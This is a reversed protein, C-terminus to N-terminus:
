RCSKPRRRLIADWRGYPPLVSPPLLLRPGWSQSFCSLCFLLIVCRIGGPACSGFVSYEQTQCKKVRMGGGRRPLFPPPSLKIKVRGEDGGTSPPPNEPSFNCVGM